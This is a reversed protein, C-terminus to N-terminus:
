QSVASKRSPLSPEATGRGESNAASSSEPRKEPVEDSKSEGNTNSDWRWLYLGLSTLLFLLSSQLGLFSIIKLWAFGEDVYRVLWSSGENFLGSLFPILIFTVKGAKSFPAFIVLHTLMLIVLAMMPLHVHTVELLSQFSRPPRFETESGRYYSVVSAPSLDMKSFYLLFNTVVFGALFLLTLTLTLRMLPNNQYGGNQLYKM